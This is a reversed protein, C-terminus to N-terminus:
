ARPVRPPRGRSPTNGFPGPVTERARKLSTPEKGQLAPTKTPSPVPTAPSPAPAGPAPPKSEPPAGVTENKDDSLVSPKEEADAIGVRSPTVFRPFAAATSPACSPPELSSPETGAAPAPAGPAPPKSEPPDDVTENKDDSIVSPTEETAAIGVRSPTM